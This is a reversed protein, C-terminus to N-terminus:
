SRSNTTRGMQADGAPRPLSELAALAAASVARHTRGTLAAVRAVDDHEPKAGHPGIKVTVRHGELDVEVSDRPLEFKEVTRLRYGLTGTETAVLDALGPALAPPCLLSLLHAPRSKKMTIPAVWADSAGAALARDILHGLVEPSVDDLNSEILVAPTAPPTAPPPAPSDAGSSDGDIVAAAVVNARGPPDMTGAGRGSAALRGAPPPGWVQVMSALLAAGTPTTTEGDHDVPRVPLGRLLELVAPAPVPVKGHAMTVAGAGLGIPSSHVAHVALSGLAAWAGVIDVIADLAGVEHFHVADIDTGHVTAEAHGLALFTRRAGDAVDPDLGAAALLADITSWSRHHHQQACTVVAHTAILGARSVSEFRLDWGDLDLRDLQDRVVAPDAGLDILAGLLMDGAVGASPNLWLTRTGTTTGPSM